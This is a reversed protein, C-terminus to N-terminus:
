SSQNKQDGGSELQQVCVCVCVRNGKSTLLELREEQDVPSVSLSSTSFEKLPELYSAPLM